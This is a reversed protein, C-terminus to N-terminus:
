AKCLGGPRRSSGLPGPGCASCCAAGPTASSPHTAHAPTQQQQPGWPSAAHRATRIGPYMLRSCQGPRQQLFREPWCPSPPPAAAAPRAAAAAGRLLPLCARCPAASPSAAPPAAHLHCPAAAPARVGGAPSSAAAEWHPCSGAAASLAPVKRPLPPEGDAGGCSAGPEHANLGLTCGSGRRGLWCCTRRFALQTGAQRPQETPGHTCTSRMCLKGGTNSGNSRCSHTSLGVWLPRAGM